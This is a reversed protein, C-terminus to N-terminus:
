FAARVSLVATRPRTVYDRFNSSENIYNRADEETINIINLSVDVNELVSYSFNVDVQGSGEGFAPQNARDFGGGLAQFYDDRYIYALRASFQEVEYYAIANFNHKSAGPVGHELLPNNDPNEFESDVFTYNAQFGFDGFVINGGLELGYVQGKAVNIPQTTDFLQDYGDITVNTLAEKLVFDSLDKYFLSAFLSSGEDTYYELTTDFSWATYPNLDANGIEATSNITSDYGIYSTDQINVSGNIKLDTYEPQSMTKAVGVRWQISDNVELMFNASPLVQFDTSQAVAGIYGLEEVVANVSNVIRTTQFGYVTRDTAVARVGMNATFHRDGIDGDLDAQVYFATTEEKVVFSNAKDLPLGTSDDANLLSGNVASSSARENFIAPYIAAQADYDAQLFQSFGIGSGPFLTETLEGNFSAAALDADDWILTFRGTERVDIETDARRVGAKVKIGNDLVWEADLKLALQDNSGRRDRGFFGVSVYSDPDNVASGYSFSPVDGTGDFRFDSPDLGYAGMIGLRLDQVFDVSSYSIDAKLTFDSYAGYEANFGIVNNESLNNFLLDFNEVKFDGGPNTVGSGNVSQVFNNEISIASQDFVGNYDFFLDVTPRQSYVDYTSTYGNISFKLDDKAQWELGYSISQREKSGRIANLTIRSHSIVDKEVRDAIGDGNSDIQIDREQARTYAEDVSYDADSQVISVYGALTNDKNRAGFVGAFKPSWDETLSDNIASVTVVGGFNENNTYLSHAKLPEMTQLEVSGGIGGEITSATPMKRVVVGSIIETPIVDLNFQRINGIGEDGHSLPTRGNVTTNVFLPGMGRISARDGGIGNDNRQIQVGPIRAIAAGINDDTFKGLDESTIADVVGQASRKLNQSNIISSRIGAKIEIVEVDDASPTEAASVNYQTFLLGTTIASALISKNFKM